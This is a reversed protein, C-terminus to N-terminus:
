RRLHQVDTLLATTAAVVARQQEARTILAPNDGSQDGYWGFGAHNGGKIPVYTTSKPLLPQSAEIKAVTALGDETGFISAVSLAHGSLNDSSAPYGAWLVLGTIQEPNRYAYRAAMAGGLSHGGVVWSHVEPYDAMVSRAADADFVALNLRMRPVVVLYGESAIAKAAPAYSRYDVRGGPYLILGVSIPGSLPRFSLWKGYDVQVDSDTTLSAMAEVM